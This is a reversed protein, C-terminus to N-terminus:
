FADRRCKQDGRTPIARQDTPLFHEAEIRLHHDLIDSMGAYRSQFIFPQYSQRDDGPRNHCLLRDQARQGRYRHLHDAGLSQRSLRRRRGRQRVKARARTRKSRRRRLSGLHSQRLRSLRRASPKGRREDHTSIRQGLVFGGAPLGIPTDASRRGLILIRPCTGAWRTVDWCWTMSNGM